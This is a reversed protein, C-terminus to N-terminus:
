PRVWLVGDVTFPQQTVDLFVSPSTPTKGEPWVMLVLADDAVLGAEEIRMTVPSLGRGMAVPAFGGTTNGYVALVLGAQAPAAQWTLTLNATSLTGAYPISAIHQGDPAVQQGAPCQGSGDQGTCVWAGEKTHGSWQFPVASPAVPAAPASPALSMPDPTTTEVPDVPATGEDACGALAVLLLVAPFSRMGCAM